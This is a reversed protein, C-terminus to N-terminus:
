GAGAVPPRLLLRTGACIGADQIKDNSQLIVNPSDTNALVLNEPNDPIGFAQLARQLVAQVVQEANVSVTKETGNYIVIVDFKKDDNTSASM